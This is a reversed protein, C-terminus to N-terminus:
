YRRARGPRAEALPIHVEEEKGKEIVGGLRISSKVQGEGWYTIAGGKAVSAVLWRRPVTLIRGGQRVSATVSDAAISRVDITGGNSVSVSLEAQGVFGDSSRIWGGNALRVSRVSPTQVEIEFRSGRPCERRCRDIVLVGDTVSVRSADRDGRPLTVRHAPGSRLLVHGGHPVEIATFPTIPIPTQTARSPLTTGPMAIMGALCLSRTIRAVLVGSPRRMIRRLVAPLIYREVMDGVQRHMFWTGYATATVVIVLPEDRFIFIKSGGNGTAYSTEYKRGRVEFTRGWFLYGYWDTSEGPFRVQKGMSKAVWAQSVIQRGNWSGGNRYLQGYRAFDLASLQLGGATSPIGQPTYQWERKTIGLPRFLKEDAYRELGGPVAKHIVDGLVVVGATFYRWREGVGTRVDLPLDLAFKVWDATPYMNEENGPSSEDDDNADFGSSMTLLDRLAVNRKEPSHNAFTTLDYFEGLTQRESTIHGEDIAIGLITSAFSKGVSRTNHLTTRDAGNFYEEILLKGDRVVVISTVQRYVSDAIMRKLASIRARDYPDKSIEWGVEPPIPHIETRKPDIASNTVRLPLDGAAMLEGVRLEPMRLYPRLELRLLHRGVRLAEAGGSLLFLHWLTGWRSEAAADNLLSASFITRLRKNESALWAPHLNERHIVVGDVLFSLQFNGRQELEEVSLGPALRHLHNVLSNDLFARVALAGASGLDFTEVFAAQRLSDVLAPEATFVIRGLNARHLPSTIGEAKVIDQQAHLRAPLVALVVHSGLLLARAVARASSLRSPM